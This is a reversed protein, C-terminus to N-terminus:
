DHQRGPVREVAVGSRRRLVGRGFRALELNVDRHHGFLLRVLLLRPLALRLHSAALGGAPSQFWAIQHEVQIQLPQAEGLRQVEPQEDHRSGQEDEPEPLGHSAPTIRLEVCPM